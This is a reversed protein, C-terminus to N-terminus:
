STISILGSFCLRQKDFVEVILAQNTQGGALVECLGVVLVRHHLDSDDFHMRRRTEVGGRWSINRKITRGNLNRRTLYGFVFQEHSHLPLILAMM